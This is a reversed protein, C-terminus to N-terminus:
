TLGVFQRGGEPMDEIRFYTVVCAEAFSFRVHAQDRSSIPRESNTISMAAFTM